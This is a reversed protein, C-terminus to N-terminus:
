HWSYNKQTTLILSCKGNYKYLTLDDGEAATLFIQDGALVPSSKGEPLDTKWLVNKAAGFETPLRGCTPCLGSGDPGRLQPWDAAFLVFAFLLALLLRMPM